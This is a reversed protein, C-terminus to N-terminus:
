LFYQFSKLSAQCSFNWTQWLRFALSTLWLTQMVNDFINKEIARAISHWPFAKMSKSKAVTIQIVECIHNSFVRLIRTVSTIFFHRVMAKNKSGWCKSFTRIYIKKSTSNKAVDSSLYLLSCSWATAIWSRFGIPIISQSRLFSLSTNIGDGSFHRSTILSMRGLNALFSVSLKIFNQWSACNSNSNKGELVHSYTLDRFNRSSM